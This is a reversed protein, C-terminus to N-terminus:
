TTLTRRDYWEVYFTLRAEFPITGSTYNFGALSYSAINWYLPISPSAGSLAAYGDDYKVQLSGVLKKCSVYNKLSFRDMGGKSSIQRYQSFANGIMQQIYQSTSVLTAQDDTSPWIVINVPIDMQNSGILHIACGSVRYREYLTAMEKQGVVNPTLILPNPDYIDNMRYRYYGYQSGVTGLLTSSVDVYTMKMYMRDPVVVGPQRVITTQIKTYKSKKRPRRKAVQRKRKYPARKQPM